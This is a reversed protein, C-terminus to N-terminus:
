CIKQGQTALIENKIFVPSYFRSALALADSPNSDLSLIKNDQMVILKSYYTNDKYNNILVGIVDIDYIDLTTKMLDHSNPRNLINNNIGKIISDVQETTTSIPIITCERRLAMLDGAVEVDMLTYSDVSFGALQLDEIKITNDRQNNVNEKLVTLESKYKELGGREFWKIAEQIDIVEKIQIGGFNTLTIKPMYNVECFEVDTTTCDIKEIQEIDKGQGTPVLFLDMNSRKAAIAKSEVMGVTRIKGNEDIAGTMTVKPNLTKNEILALVSVAMAASASQGDIISADTEISFTVDQDDFSVKSINEVVNVARRASIQLEYGSIVDGINVLVQGNGPKIRTTLTTLVGEGNDKVAPISLVAVREDATKYIIEQIPAPALKFGLTIGIFFVIILAAALAVDAAISLRKHHKHM